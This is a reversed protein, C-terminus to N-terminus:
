HISYFFETLLPEIAKPLEGKRSKENLWLFVDKPERFETVNDFEVLLQPAYEKLVGRIDSYHREISKM